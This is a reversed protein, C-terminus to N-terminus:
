SGPLRAPTQRDGLVPGKLLRQVTEWSWKAPGGSWVGLPTVRKLGGDKLSRSDSGQLLWLWDQGARLQRVAVFARGGLRTRRLLWGVQAPRLGVSWGTTKKFEIWGEIGGSFCFNVDPVGAATAGTEIPTWHAAPLKQRFILRLGGDSSM